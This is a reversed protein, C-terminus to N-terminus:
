AAVVPTRLSRVGSAWLLARDRGSRKAAFLAEDARARLELSSREGSATEVSIGISVSTRLEHGLVRFRHARVRRTIREAIVAASECDVERLIIGFEEGGVRAVSDGTRCGSRLLAGLERLVMDGAHHGYRDNLQKFRDIDIALLAVEEHAGTAASTAKEMEETFGRRNLCGTLPDISALSRLRSLEADILLAVCSLTVVAFVGGAVQGSTSAALAAPMLATSAVCVALVLRLKGFGSAGRIVPSERSIRREVVVSQMM